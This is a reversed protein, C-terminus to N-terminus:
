SQVEMKMAEKAMKRRAKKYRYKREKSSPAPFCCACRRGGPGVTLYKSQM